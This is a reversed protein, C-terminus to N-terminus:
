EEGTDDRSKPRPVLLLNNLIKRGSNLGQRRRLNTVLNHEGPRDAGQRRPRIKPQSDDIGGTSQVRLHASEIDPVPLPCPLGVNALPSLNAASLGVFNSQKDHRALCRLSEVFIEIPGGPILREVTDIRACRSEQSADGDSPSEELRNTLDPLVAPVDIHACREIRGTMGSQSCAPLVGAMVHPVIVPRM